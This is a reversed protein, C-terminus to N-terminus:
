QNEKLLAQMQAVLNKADFPKSIVGLISLESFAEPDPQPIVSTFLIVPISQTAPHSRLHRLTTIGDMDPMMLDLLIVDPKQALALALGEAGSAALLTRWGAVIEISAQTALRINDDDDVILVTYM